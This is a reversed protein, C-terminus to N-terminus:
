PYVLRVNVARWGRSTEVVDDFRIPTGIQLRRFTNGRDCDKQNLFIWHAYGEIEAFAFGRDKRLDVVRAYYMRIRRLPFNPVSM